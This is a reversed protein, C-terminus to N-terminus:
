NQGDDNRVRERAWRSTEERANLLPDLRQLRWSDGAESGSAYMAVAALSLYTHYPDANEGPEKSIGGYKFQCDAIFRLLAPVNVLEKMGLIELAAGCWFCYCADAEKETRGRFGGSLEQNQVLWRVTQAREAPTLVDAGARLKDPILHLAAVALYTTGGHAECFPMKGYGGEQSRCSAIFRVASPIDIGSWDDLMTSISFACYLSRLDTEGDGPITSFSGDERQCARLFKVLSPRDLRKFDDRFIALTLLGAYTMIIHPTDYRLNHESPEKIKVYPSSRFGSGHSGITYQEWIWSRWVERDDSTTKEYLLGLLDLSGICYLGIV